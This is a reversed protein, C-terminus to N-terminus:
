MHTDTISPLATGIGACVQATVRPVQSSPLAPDALEHLALVALAPAQDKSAVHDIAFAHDLVSKMGLNALQLRVVDDNLAGLGPRGQAQLTSRAALVAAIASLVMAKRCNNM